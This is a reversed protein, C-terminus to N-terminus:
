CGTGFSDIFDLFDLIDVFTDGNIDAEGFSGCPAPQGECTSFDDVFDLFDLIDPEEDDNYKAACDPEGTPTWRIVHYATVGGYTGYARGHVVGDDDVATASSLSWASGAPLLAHLNVFSDATGSWAAAGFSTVGVQVRGNTAIAHSNTAGAPHLVVVSEATGTWLLALLSSPGSLPKGSGVQQGGGVGYASSETFGSPHLDVVSEVTGTWVMARILLPASPLASYGVQQGDGIGVVRSSEYAAPHLHVVSSASGSWMAARVGMTGVQVIGGQHTGDTAEARSYSYGAPNLDVASAATGNWLLAHYQNLASVWGYGVQQSGEAGHTYSEVCGPPNLDIPVSAGPPMYMAHPIGGTATGYGYGSAAGTTSVYDFYTAPIGPLARLPNLVECTYEQASISGGLGCVLGCVLALAAARRVCGQISTAQLM